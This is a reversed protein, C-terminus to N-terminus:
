FVTTVYIGLIRDFRPLSMFSSVDTLSFATIESVIPVITM